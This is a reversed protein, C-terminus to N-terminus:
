GIWYNSFRREEERRRKGEEEGRIWKKEEQKNQNIVQQWLVGNVFTMQKVGNTFGAATTDGNIALVGTATITWVDRNNDM